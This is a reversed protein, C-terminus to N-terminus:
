RSGKKGRFNKLADRMELLIPTGFFGYKERIRNELYRRYSFHFAGANNVFFIFKPPSVDVQQAMKIKGKKTKVSPPLHGFIIKPLWLNLAATSVRKQREAYIQQASELLPPLTKPSKASFFVVPAWPCFGIKQHLYTLYTKCMKQVNAGENDSNKSESEAQFLDFKNVGFILGKGARIIQGALVLDQHAVGAVADLVLVCVDASEISRATRVSAWFELHRGLKGKKRVGATDLFHFNQGLKEDFFDASVSDRTTGPTASVVARNQGLFGNLTSSKGANPRGVFTIKITKEDTSKESTECKLLKKENLKLEIQHRLHQTGARNKASIACFDKVGFGLFEPLFSAENAGADLKNIGVLLPKGSRRLSDFIEADAATAPSKGDFLLLILDANEAAVESQLQINQELGEGKENTLGATDLLWFDGSDTKIKEMLTDRTTGAVESIISRKEGLFANFLTSKGVNPRGVIAVVPLISDNM